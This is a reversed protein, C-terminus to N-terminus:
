DEKYLRIYDHTRSPTFTYDQINARHAILYFENMIPISPADAMIMDQVKHYIEEREEFVATRLGKELISDVEPNKYDGWNAWGTSHYMLDLHAAPEGTRQMLGIYALDFDREDLKDLLTAFEVIELNVDIGLQNFQYHIAENLESDMTYRGQPTTLTFSLTEGDENRLLGDNGKTWGAEALLELARDPDYDYLKVDPNHYLSENTLPGIAPEAVGELFADILEELDLAHHLAQRVRVDQFVETAFNFVLNRTNFDPESILVIDEDEDLIEIYETPVTTVLDITGIRLETMQTGAEPIPRFKVQEIRPAQDWYDLNRELVVETDPTWSKFVFAGTGVPNHTYDEGYEEIARPSAIFTANQILVDDIFAANPEYLNIVITYDDIIEMSKINDRMLQGAHSGTEPDKLREFNFYVAEANFPTGDHFEVGQRLYFTYARADECIEWDEALGPAFSGDFDRRILHDYIQFGVSSTPADELYAPDLDQIDARLAVVLTDEPTQAQAANFGAFILLGALLCGILLGKKGM